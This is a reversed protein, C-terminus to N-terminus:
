KWDFTGTSGSIHYKGVPEFVVKDGKETKEKIKLLLSVAYSVVETNNKLGLEKRLYDIKELEEDTFELKIAVRQM